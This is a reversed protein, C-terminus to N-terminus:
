AREIVQGLSVCIAVQHAGVKKIPEATKKEEKVEKPKAPKREVEETVQVM